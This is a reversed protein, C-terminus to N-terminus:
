FFYFHSRKLLDIDIWTLIDLEHISDQAMNNVLFTNKFLKCM